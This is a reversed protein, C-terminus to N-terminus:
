KRIVFYNIDDKIENSVGFYEYGHKFTEINLDNINTLIKKKLIHGRLVGMFKEQFLVFKPTRRIIQYKYKIDDTTLNREQFNDLWIKKELIIFDNHIELVEFPILKNGVNLTKENETLTYFKEDDSYKKIKELIVEDISKITILLNEYNGKKDQYNKYNYLKEDDLDFIDINKYGYKKEIEEKISNLDNYKITIIDNDGNLFSIKVKYSKKNELEEIKKEKENDSDILEKEKKEYKEKLKKLQQQILIRENKILTIENDIKENEQKYNM